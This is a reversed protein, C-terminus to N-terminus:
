GPRPPATPTPNRWGWCAGSRPSTSSRARAAPRRGHPAGGGQGDSLARDPQGPAGGRLRRDRDQLLRGDGQHDRGLLRRHRGAGDDREVAEVLAEVQAEDGADLPMFRADLGQDKLAQAETEGAEALMDTLVVRAGEAAYRQAIALGIGGAAGTIVAVKDKLSM